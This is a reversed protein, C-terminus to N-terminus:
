KKGKKKKAKKKKTKQDRSSTSDTTMWTDIPTPSYESGNDDCDHNSSSNISSSSSSDKLPTTFEVDAVSLLPEQLLEYSVSSHELRLPTCEKSKEMNEEAALVAERRMTRIGDVMDVGEGIAESVVDVCLLNIALVVSARRLEEMEIELEGINTELMEVQSTHNAELGVIENKNLSLEDTIELLKVEYNIKLERIEKAHTELESDGGESSVGATHPSPVSAPVPLPPSLAFAAPFHSQSLHARPPSCVPVPSSPPSSLRSPSLTTRSLSRALGRPPSPVALPRESKVNAQEVASVKENSCGDAVSFADKAQTAQLKKLEDAHVKQVAKLMTELGNVRQWLMVHDILFRACIVFDWVVVCEDETLLSSGVQSTKLAEKSAAERMFLLLELVKAEHEEKDKQRQESLATAHGRKLAAITATHTCLQEDQESLLYKKERAAQETVECLSAKLAGREEILTKIQAAQDRCVLRSCEADGSLGRVASGEAQGGRQLLLAITSNLAALEQEHEGTLRALEAELCAAMVMVREEEEEKQKSEERVMDM